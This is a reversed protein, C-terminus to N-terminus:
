PELTKHLEAFIDDALLPNHYRAMMGQGKRLLGIALRGAAATVEPFRLFSGDGCIQAVIGAKAYHDTAKTFPAIDRPLKIDPAVNLFWEMVWYSEPDEQSEHCVLVEVNNISIAVVRHHGKRQNTSPFATVSWFRGETQHPWPVAAALYDVLVSRIHAYDPRERLQQYRLRQSTTPSGRNVREGLVLGPNTGSLWADQVARDVVLDLAASSRPLHVLDLNRLKVGTDALTQITAREVQDLNKQPVKAFRFAVIRGEQHRHHTSFRNLFSVSKGVYEEGNDFELVYVGCLPGNPKLIASLSTIGDWEYRKFHM